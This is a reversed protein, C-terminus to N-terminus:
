GHIIALFDDHLVMPAEGILCGPLPQSEKPGLGEILELLVLGPLLQFGIVAVVDFVLLLDWHGFLTVIAFPVLFPDVLGEQFSIFARLEAMFKLLLDHECALLAALDDHKMVYWSARCFILSLAGELCAKPWNSCPFLSFSLGLPLEFGVFARRVVLLVGQRVTELWSVPLSFTWVWEDMM